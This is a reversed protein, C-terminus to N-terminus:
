KSTKLTRKTQLPKRAIKKHTAFIPILNVCIPIFNDLQFDTIQTLM